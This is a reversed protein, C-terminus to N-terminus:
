VKGTPRAAAHADTAISLNSRRLRPISAVMLGVLSMTAATLFTTSFGLAVATESAHLVDCSGVAATFLTAMASAGTVFGLNRSPGLLGSLMGRQSDPAAGMLAWGNATLFMQFGPTLVILSAAYGAVGIHRPLIALLTFGIAAEVLGVAMMAQAGFGIWWEERL